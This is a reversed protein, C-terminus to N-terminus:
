RVLVATANGYCSQREPCMQIRHLQRSWGDHNSAACHICACRSSTTSTVNAVLLSSPLLGSLQLESLDTAESNILVPSLANPLSGSLRNRAFSVRWFFSSSNGGPVFTPLSGSLQNASVDLGYVPGPAFAIMLGTPITGTCPMCM